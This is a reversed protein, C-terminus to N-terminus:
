SGARVGASREALLVGATAAVWGGCGGARGVWRRMCDIIDRYRQVAEEDLQGREPELRHWELSLRFCNSGLGAARELDEEYRNWFDCASGCRDGNHITPQRFLTRQREFIGWNTAEKFQDGSCQWTSIAFGVAFPEGEGSGGPASAGGARGVCGRDRTGGSDM